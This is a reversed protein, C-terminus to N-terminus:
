AEGELRLIEGVTYFSGFIVVRDKPTANRLADAHAAAVDDRRHVPEKLSIDAFARALEQSGLGRPVSLSTVYWADVVDRMESIVGRIDKGNLMGFVGLTRGACRRSRLTAALSRAAQVNHAVDLIREVRGSLVQFRGNLTVESLGTRLASESVPLIETLCQVVMIVAAANDLQFRGSLAPFPLDTFSMADSQWDWGRSRMRTVFDSGLQFFPAGVEVAHQELSVPPNSDGCIAPRGPRFTGAKERGIAERDGGLWDVHDIDITTVLVLHPDFLNVADLRGGLGVELIVVDLTERQFLEMAALTGYEFYTLSTSDRALDVRDFASMLADDSAEVGNIRIRENYRVLHPSTYVGVRYGATRMISELMAVCSGKGNTGAVTIVTFPPTSWSMRRLVQRCRGLGLEIKRPHLSDQWALWDALRHFRM